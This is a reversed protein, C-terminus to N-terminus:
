MPRSRQPPRPRLRLPHLPRHGPQCTLKRRGRAMRTRSYKGSPVGQASMGAVHMYARVCRCGALNSRAHRNVDVSRVQAASWSPSRDQRRAQLAPQHRPHRGMQQVEEGANTRARRQAFGRPVVAAVVLMAAVVRHKQCSDRGDDMTRRRNRALSIDTLIRTMSSRM